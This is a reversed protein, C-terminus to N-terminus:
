LEFSFTERWKGDCINEEVLMLIQDLSNGSTFFHKSTATPFGLVGGM